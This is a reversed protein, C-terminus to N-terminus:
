LELFTGDQEVIYLPLRVKFEMGFEVEYTDYQVINKAGNEADEAVIKMNTRRTVDGDTTAVDFEDQEFITRSILNEIVQEQTNM